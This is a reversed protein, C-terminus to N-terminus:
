PSPSLIEASYPFHLGRKILRENLKDTSVDGLFARIGNHVGGIVTECAACAYISGNVSGAPRGNHGFAALDSAARCALGDDCGAAVEFGSIDDMGNSGDIAVACLSFRSKQGGSILIAQRQGYLIAQLADGKRGDLDSSCV